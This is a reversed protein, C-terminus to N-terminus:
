EHDVHGALTRLAEVTRITVAELGVASPAATDRVLGAAPGTAVVLPLSRPDVSAAGGDAGLSRRWALWQARETRRARTVRQWDRVDHAWGAFTGGLPLLVAALLLASARQGDLDVSRAGILAVAALVLAAAAAAGLRGTRPRDVMREFRARAGVHIGWDLQADDPLTVRSSPRDALVVTIGDELAVLRLADIAVDDADAEDAHALGILTASGHEEGTSRRLQLQRREVLDLVHAAFAGEADIEGAGAALIAAGVPDLSSPPGASMDKGAGPVRMAFFSRAHRRWAWLPLAACALAGLPLIWWWGHRLRDLTRRDHRRQAVQDDLPDTVSRLSGASTTDPVDPLAERPVTVYFRIADSGAGPRVVRLTATSREISAPLKLEADITGHSACHLTGDFAFFETSGITRLERHLKTPTCHPSGSSTAVRTATAEGSEALRVEYRQSGHSGGLIGNANIAWIGLVALTCALTGIITRRTPGAHAPAIWGEDVLRKTV